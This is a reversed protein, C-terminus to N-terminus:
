KEPSIKKVGSITETFVEVVEYHKTKAYKVLEEIQRDVDQSHTSVRGYIIVKM